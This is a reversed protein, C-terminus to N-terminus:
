TSCTQSHEHAHTKSSAHSVTSLKSLVLLLPYSIHSQHFLQHISFRVDLGIKNKHEDDIWVIEVVLEGVMKEVKGEPAGLM